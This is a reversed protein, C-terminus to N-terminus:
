LAAEAPREAAPFDGKRWGLDAFAPQLHIPTPYRVVADVGAARVHRLRDDRRDTRVQFLHYVHEEAPEVHQFRLALNALREGYAEEVERGGAKWEAVRPLKYRLGATQIADLKRNQGFVVHHNR